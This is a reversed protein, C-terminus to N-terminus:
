NLMISDEDVIVTKGGSIGAAMLAADLDRQGFMRVDSISQVGRLLCLQNAVIDSNCVAIIPMDPRRCSIERTANGDRDFVIIARAKNLHAMSAVSRSWDNEPVNDVRGWDYSNDISDADAAALIKTMTEVVGVPHDGITTEESLMTSDARLYAATAVDSIEARLPFEEHVMSGLMQTAIIVPCNKKRCIRILHRQVAPIQEFPMEVALDGRAVMVADATAVIEEARKVAQPREIKVIIKVPASTKATIFDRAEIVDEPKQVFSIAIFDPNKTLAYELDARDKETLVSTDVETDPLNFGRRSWIENGRVVKTTVGLYSVRSVLDPDHKEYRTDTVELEIKGDNLLVRDGIKLSKLVDEDLLPVRTSNGPTPDNDLTFVQGPEIHYHDETEFEGIRHKPGQLDAIIAIPQGLEKSIERIKDFKAGQVDGTDHSFNLRCVNVGASVMSKLVEYDSSAPGISATIKTLKQM